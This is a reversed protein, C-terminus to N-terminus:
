RYGSRIFALVHLFVNSRYFGVTSLIWLAEEFASAEHFVRSKARFQISAPFYRVECVSEGDTYDGFATISPGSVGRLFCDLFYTFVVFFATLSPVPDSKPPLLWFDNTRMYRVTCM